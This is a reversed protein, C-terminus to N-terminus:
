GLRRVQSSVPSKDDEHVDPLLEKTSPLAIRTGNKGLTKGGILSPVQRDITMSLSRSSITTPKEYLEKSDEVNSGVQDM